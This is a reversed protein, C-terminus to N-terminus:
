PQYRRIDQGGSKQNTHMDVLAIRTHTLDRLARIAAPPIFSLEILGHALLEALWHADAKNTKQGAAAARCPLPAGGPNGNLCPLHAALLCGHEGAGRQQRLDWVTATVEM